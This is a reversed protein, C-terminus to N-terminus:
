EGYYAKKYLEKIEEILPYRPNAGTCQDDFADRSMKEVSELFELESVKEGLADKITAPLGLGERLGDFKEQLATFLEKDTKGKCGIRRALEAYRELAEPYAYQPFTGMKTPTPDANFDMVWKLLLANSTGHPLHWRAGLKHAM